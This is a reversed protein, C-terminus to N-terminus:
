LHVRQICLHIILAYLLRPLHQSLRTLLPLHYRGAHASTGGNCYDRENCYCITTPFGMFDSLTRCGLTVNKSHQPGACGKSVYNVVTVALSRSLASLLSSITCVARGRQSSDRITQGVVSGRLEGFTKVCAYGDCRGGSCYHKDNCAYCSVSMTIASALLHSTASCESPLLCLVIFITAVVHRRVPTRVTTVASSAAADRGGAADAVAIQRYQCDARHHCPCQHSSSSHGGQGCQCM